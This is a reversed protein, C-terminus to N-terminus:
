ERAAEEQAAQVKADGEAKAQLAAAEMAEMQARLPSVKVDAPLKPDLRAGEIYQYVASLSHHVYDIRVKTETMTYRTGGYVEDGRSFPYISLDDYQMQLAFRATERTHREFYEVKEPRTRLALQYAAATGEAYCFAQMAPLERANKYYGGVYDPWPAREEDWMYSDIMWEGVRMAFDTGSDDGTARQYANAAMVSWPGFQVLDLRDQDNIYLREPWADETSANGVREDWWGEYFNFYPPIPAIWKEDGTYEYLMVLALAAEGPVIDNRQGYYSHTPPVYYPNFRGDDEQMHLVFNGMEIMLEDYKHDDTARALDIIGMLGVVVSGLKRNHAPHLEDVPAPPIDPNGVKLKRGDEDVQPYEIFTMKSGDPLVETKRWTLTWDLAREAGEVFEPRQEINYAQVLNWTALTHRVLNYEDSYRNESPWMKYTVQGPAYSLPQDNPHLNALYWEGAAVVSEELRQLDVTQMPVPPVGRFLPVVKSPETENEPYQVYEISRVKELTNEPERWPRLSSMHFEAAGHRLMRDTEVYSRTFALSGPIVAAKNKEPEIILAGDIGKEWLTEIQQRELAYVTARETIRHVHILLEDTQDSIRPHGFWEQYRRHERELDRALELVCDAYSERFCMGTAMERGGDYRVSAMLNWKRGNETPLNPLAPIPDGRLRTRIVDATLQALQPPFQKPKQIVQYVRYNNDVAVLEFYQRYDDHYLRSAVWKGRDVSGNIDWRLILVQAGDDLMAQHFAQEDTGWILAKREPKDYIGEVSVGAPLDQIKEPADAWVKIEQQSLNAVIGENLRANGAKALAADVRGERTPSQVIISKGTLEATTGGTCAMWAMLLLTVRVELDRDRVREPSCLLM